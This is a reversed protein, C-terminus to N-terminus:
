HVIAPRQPSHTSPVPVGRHSAFVTSDSATGSQMREASPDRPPRPKVPSVDRPRWGIADAQGRLTLVVQVVATIGLVRTAPIVWSKVRIEAPNEYALWLGCKLYRRPGVAAAAAFLGFPVGTVRSVAGMRRVLLLYGIMRPPGHPHDM